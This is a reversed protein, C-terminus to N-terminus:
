ATVSFAPCGEWAVDWPGIWSSGVRNGNRRTFKGTARHRTQGEGAFAVGLLPSIQSHRQDDQPLVPHYTEASFIKVEGRDFAARWRLWMQWSELALDVTQESLPLLKYTDAYDDRAEDWECSFHCPVGNNLAVGSRPGDHYDYVTLVPEVIEAPM